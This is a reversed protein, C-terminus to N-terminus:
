KRMKRSTKREKGNKLNVKRRVKGKRWDQRFPPSAGGKGDVRKNKFILIILNKKKGRWWNIQKDVGTEKVRTERLNWCMNERTRGKAKRKEEIIVSSGRPGGRRRELSGARPKSEEAWGWCLVKCSPEASSGCVLSLKTGCICEHRETEGLVAANPKLELTIQMM